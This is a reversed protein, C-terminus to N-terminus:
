VGITKVKQSLEEELCISGASYLRTKPIIEEYSLVGLEPLSDQIFKRFPLRIRSSLLIAPKIGRNKLEEAKLRCQSVIKEAIEPKLRPKLASLDEPPIFNQELKPDLTLVSIKGESDLYKQTLTRKLGARVLETLVLPDKIEPSKEALVEFITLLDKIPVNERLLNQLIKQIATLPLNQPYVEEVLAPYASKLEELLDKMEQLGFIEPVNERILEALHTTLVAKPEVV